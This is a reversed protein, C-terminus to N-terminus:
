NKALVLVVSHKLLKRICLCTRGKGLIEKPSEGGLPHSPSEPPIDGRERFWCVIVTLRINHQSSTHM